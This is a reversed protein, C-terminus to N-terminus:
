PTGKQEMRDKLRCNLMQSPAVTEAGWQYDSEGARRLIVRHQCPVDFVESEPEHVWSFLQWKAAIMPGHKRPSREGMMSVTDAADGRDIGPIMDPVLIVREMPLDTFQIESQPVFLGDHSRHKLM